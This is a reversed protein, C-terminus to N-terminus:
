DPPDGPGLSDLRIRAVNSQQGRHFVLFVEDCTIALASTFQWFVGGDGVIKGLKWSRGDSLRVIRVGGDYVTNAFNHAAYGCGVTFTNAGFLMTESRLRRKAIASPDRTFPATTIDIKAWPDSVSSRGSAETWVMDKGDTGFDSAGKSIDNGYSIFDHLGDAPSFIKIRHYENTGMPFFMTDGAFSPKGPQGPDPMPVKAVLASPSAWTKLADEPYAFYANPGAFYSRGVGDGYSELVAPVKDIDGGLAGIRYAQPGNARLAHFVARRESLSGDTIYCDGAPRVFATRVPGDAEAVLYFAQQGSFRSVMLQARGAADVHGAIAEAMFLGSFHSSEPPAWNFAIQRCAWGGINMGPDCSEWQIPPPMKDPAPAAYFGCDVNPDFPINIWGDTNYTPVRNADPSASDTDVVAIRGDPRQVDSRDSADAGAASDDGGCAAFPAVLPAVGLVFVLAKRIM